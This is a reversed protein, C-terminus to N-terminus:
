EEVRNLAHLLNGMAHILILIYQFHYVLKESPLIFLHKLFIFYFSEESSATILGPFAVTGKM